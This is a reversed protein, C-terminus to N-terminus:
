NQKLYFRYHEKKFNLKEILNIIEKGDSSDFFEIKNLESLKKISNPLTDINRMQLYKLKRRNYQGHYWSSDLDTDLNWFHTSGNIYNGNRDIILEEMNHSNNIYAKPNLTFIENIVGLDSCSYYDDAPRDASEISPRVFGDNDDDIYIGNLIGACDTCSSNDGGCINCLDNYKCSNPTYISAEPNFNCAASDTCGYVKKPEGCGFFLLALVIPFLKNM